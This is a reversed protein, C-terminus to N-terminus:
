ILTFSPSAADGSYNWPEEKARLLAASAFARLWHEHVRNPEFSDDPESNRILELVECPYWHMPEVFIRKDRLLRLQALHQEQDQGYDAQAIQALMGDSIRKSLESLLSDEDPQLSQLFDRLM